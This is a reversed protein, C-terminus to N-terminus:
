MIYSLGFLLLLTICLCISVYYYYPLVVNAVPPEVVPVTNISWFKWKNVICFICCVCLMM